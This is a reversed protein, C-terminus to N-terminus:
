INGGIQYKMSMTVSHAKYTLNNYMSQRHRLKKM